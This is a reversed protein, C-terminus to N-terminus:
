IDGKAQVIYGRTRGGFVLEESSEICSLDHVLETRGLDDADGGADDKFRPRESDEAIHFCDFKDAVLEATNAEWWEVSVEARGIVKALRIDRHPVDV